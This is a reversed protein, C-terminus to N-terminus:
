SRCSSEEENNEKYFISKLDDLIEDFEGWFPALDFDKLDRGELGSTLEGIYGDMCWRIYKMAKESGIDARFKSTDADTLFDRLIGERRAQMEGYLRKTEGSIETEAENFYLRTLFGFVHPNKLYAELKYKSTLRYKEIFDCTGGSAEIRTFYDSVYAISYEILYNYLRLKNEFYYFLMGKGIGAAEVIRNTSARKYGHEAFEAMAANLIM